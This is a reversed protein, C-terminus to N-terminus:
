SALIQSSVEVHLCDVARQAAEDAGELTDQVAILYGNGLVASGSDARRVVEGRQLPCECAVIGSVARAQDIGAVSVVRGEPVALMRMIGARSFRVSFDAAEGLLHRVMERVPDCGTVYPVFHSSIRFGSPRGSLEIVVAHGTCEELILDVHLLCDDLGLARSASEAAALLDTTENETLGPPTRVGLALRFPLPTVEKRRLCIAHFKGAVMAADLGFEPGPIWSEVLTAASEGGRAAHARHWDLHSSLDAASHLVVVGHSGSGMRPKLVVPWKMSAVHEQIETANAAERWEPQALGANKLVRRMARKDSCLHASASNLGPLGMAENLRGAIELLGGMPTPLLFSVGAARCRAEVAARNAPDIFWAEDALALGPAQPNRDFALVRVGLEQATRIAHLQEPGAGMVAAVVQILAPRQMMSIVETCIRDAGRGDVCAMAEAANPACGAPDALWQALGSALDADTLQALPPLVGFWGRDAVHKLGAEQNEVIPVLLAPLGVAALEHMTAGGAAIAGDCDAMVEAMSAVNRLMTLRPLSAGLEQFHRDPRPNLGGVVLVIEEPPVSLTSLARLVRGSADVPDSGGMSLLVRRLISGSRPRRAGGFEARLLAYRPGLLFRAGPARGRYDEFTAHFSPDIVLKVSPEVTRAGDDVMLIRMGDAALGRFFEPQFVYGDVAVWRANSERGLALTEAADAAAGPRTSMAHIVMGSARIQRAFDEQLAPVALICRGGARQWAEGLALLRMVHGSGANEGGHARLLLM